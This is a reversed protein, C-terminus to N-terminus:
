SINVCKAKLKEASSTNDDSRRPQANFAYLCPMMNAKINYRRLYLM